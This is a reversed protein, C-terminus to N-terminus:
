FTRTHHLQHEHLASHHRRAMDVSYLIVFKHQVPTKGAYYNKICAFIRDIAQFNVKKPRGAGHEQIRSVPVSVGASLVLPPLACARHRTEQQQLTSGALLRRAWGPVQLMAVWSGSPFYLFCTHNSPLFSSIGLTSKHNVPSVSALVCM